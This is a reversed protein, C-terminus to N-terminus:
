VFWRDACGIPYGEADIKDSYNRPDFVNAEWSGPRKHQSIAYHMLAEMFQRLTMDNAEAVERMRQLGDTNLKISSTPTSAM